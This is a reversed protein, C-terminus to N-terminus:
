IKKRIKTKRITTTRIFRRFPKATLSYNKWRSIIIQIKNTFRNKIMEIKFNM